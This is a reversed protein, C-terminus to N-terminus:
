ALESLKASPYPPAPEDQVGTQGGVTSPSARRRASALYAKRARHTKLSTELEKMLVKLSKRVIYVRVGTMIALLAVTGLVLGVIFGVSLTPSQPEPPSQYVSIETSEDCLWLYDLIYPQNDSAATINITLNYLGDTMDGSNFLWQNPVCQDTAAIPLSALDLGDISYSAQPPSSGPPVLGFVVITSGNFILSVSSGPTQTLHVTNLLGHPDSTSVNWGDSYHLSADNDNLTHCDPVMQSPNDISCGSPLKSSSSQDSTSTHSATGTPAPALSTSPASDRPVLRALRWNKSYNDM